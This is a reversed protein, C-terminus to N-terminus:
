FTNARPEDALQEGLIWSPLSGCHADALRFFPRPLRHMVITHLTILWRSRKCSVSYKLSVHRRALSFRSPLNQIMPLHTLCNRSQQTEPSNCVMRVAWHFHCKAGDCGCDLLSGAELIPFALIPIKDLSQDSTSLDVPRREAM